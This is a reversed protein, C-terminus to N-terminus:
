CSGITMNLTVSPPRGSRGVSAVFRPSVSSRQFNIWDAQAWSTSSLGGTSVIMLERRRALQGFGSDGDLERSGQKGTDIPLTKM